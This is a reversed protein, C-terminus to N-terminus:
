GPCGIWEACADDELTAVAAEGGDVSSTHSWPLWDLIVLDDRRPRASRGHELWDGVCRADQRLPMTSKLWITGPTQL